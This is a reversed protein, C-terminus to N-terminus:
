LGKQRLQHRIRETLVTATNALMLPIHAPAADRAPIMMGIHLERTLRFVDTADPDREMVQSGTVDDGVYVFATVRLEVRASKSM